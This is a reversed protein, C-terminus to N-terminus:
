FTSSRREKQDLDALYFRIKKDLEISEESEVFHIGIGAMKGAQAFRPTLWVVRGKIAYVKPDNFLKINAKVIDGLKFSDETPIFLGGGNIFPMHNQALHQKNRYHWDFVNFNSTSTDTM